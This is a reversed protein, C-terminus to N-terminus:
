RINKCYFASNLMRQKKILSHVTKCITTKILSVSLVARNVHEYGFFQLRKRWPICQPIQDEQYQAPLIHEKAPQDEFEDLLPLLIHGRM